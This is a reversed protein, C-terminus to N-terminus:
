FKPCPLIKQIRKNKKTKFGYSLTLEHADGSIGSLRSITYDYSYGMSIGKHLFGILFILADNNTKESAYVKIPIGRYWFGAILVNYQGYLGIDLQDSKGQMKYHFTPTISKEEDPNVHKKRWEPTFSFTYGGFLSAKIPLPSQGKIFSQEPTNLHNVSIGVWYKKAYLLGGTSIDLYSVTPITSAENSAGGIFGDNTYQSGFTLRNFNISRNVYSIQLAPRFVIKKSLKAQFAYILGAETSHLNAATSLDSTAIFGIGSKYHDIYHDVSITNSIFSADLGPWQYRTAFIARTNEQAGAFAPNLYLANAYYQSYQPDQAFANISCLFTLLLYIHLKIRSM